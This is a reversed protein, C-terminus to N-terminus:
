GPIGGPYAYGICKRVEDMTEMVDLTYRHTVWENETRGALIDAAVADFEYQFGEGQRNAEFVETGADTTLSVADPGWFHPIRIIGQTGCIIGEQPTVTDVACFLRATAGDEYQLNIATQADVGSPMRRTLAQVRQPKRGFAFRALAVAYVGTDLLAGGALEPLTIRDIPPDVNIGVDAALTQVTGIRGEALWEMVKRVGPSFRMWMGEMLYQGKARATDVMVTAEDATVAFPKECLVPLGAKLAALTHPMHAPHPTAVYAAKVGPAALAAELDDYAAAGCLDAIEQARALTRSYVAAIYSGQSRPLDALVRHAISGAGIFCWGFTKEAM